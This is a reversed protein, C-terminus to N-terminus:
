IGPSNFYMQRETSGDLSPELLRKLKKFVLKYFRNETNASYVIQTVQMLPTIPATRVNLFPIEQKPAPLSISLTM